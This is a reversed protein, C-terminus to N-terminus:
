KSERWTKLYKHASDLFVKKRQLFSPARFVWIYVLKLEMDTCIMLALLSLMSTQLATRQSSGLDVRQQNNGERRCHKLLIGGSVSYKRLSLYVSSSFTSLGSPM